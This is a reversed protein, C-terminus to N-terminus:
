HFLDKKRHLYVLGWLGYLTIISLIVTYSVFNTFNFGHMGRSFYLIFLCTIPWYVTIGMAGGMALVGWRRRRMIGVLGIVLLPIYVVTDGVGFGKNTAIGREGLEEESEQLGMSVAFDYDIIAMTQGALLMVLLLFGTILLIMIGVPRSENMGYERFLGSHNERGDIGM